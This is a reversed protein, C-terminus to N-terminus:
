AGDGCYAKFCGNASRPLSYVYFGDCRRVRVTLNTKCCDNGDNFCVRGSIEGDAVQPLRGDFWGTQNTGCRGYPVCSNAMAKGAAGDFRYWGGRWDRNSFISDCRHLFQDFTRSRTSNSLTEYKTCEEGTLMYVYNAFHRGVHAGGIFRCNWSRGHRDYKGPGGWCEGYFQIGFFPSNTEKAEQACKDVVSTKLDNWDMSNDSPNRYSALLTMARAQRKDKFCGVRVYNLTSQVCTQQTIIILIVAFALCVASGGRGM